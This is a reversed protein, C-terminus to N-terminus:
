IHTLKRNEDLYFLLSGYTTVIKPISEYSIPNRRFGTFLKNRLDTREITYSLYEYKEDTSLYPCKKTVVKSNDYTFYCYINDDDQEMICCDNVIMLDKKDSIIVGELNVYYYLVYSPYEVKFVSFSGEIRILYGPINDNVVSSRVKRFLENSAVRDRFSLQEASSNNVMYGSRYSYSDHLFTEYTYKSRAINYYLSVMMDEIDKNVTMHCVIYDTTVHSINYDMLGVGGSSISSRITGSFYIKEKGNEIKTLSIVRYLYDNWTSIVLDNKYIGIKCNDYPIVPNHIKIRSNITDSLISNNTVISYNKDTLIHHIYNTFRSYRDLYLSNITFKTAYKQDDMSKRVDLNDFINEYIHPELSNNIILDTVESEYRFHTYIWLESIENTIQAETFQTYGSPTGDEKIYFVINFKIPDDVMDGPFIFPTDRDFDARYSDWFPYKDKNSTIKSFVEIMNRTTIAPYDDWYVLRIHLCEIVDYPSSNYKTVFGTSKYSENM